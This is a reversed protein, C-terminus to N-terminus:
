NYFLELDVIHKSREVVQKVEYSLELSKKISSNKSEYIKQQFREKNIMFSHKNILRKVEEEFNEFRYIDINTKSKKRYYQIYSRLNMKLINLSFDENIFDSCTLSDNCVKQFLGLDFKIENESLHKIGKKSSVKWIDPSFYYSILRSIPNRIITFVKYYTYSKKLIYKYEALLNHKQTSIKGKIGFNDKNSEPISYKNDDSYKMLNHELWSGGTKPIHIFLKKNIFHMLKKIELKVLKKM